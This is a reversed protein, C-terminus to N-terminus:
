TQFNLLLRHAFICSTVYFTLAIIKPCVIKRSIIAFITSVATLKYTHTHNEWAIFSIHRFEHMTALGPGLYSPIHLPFFTGGVNLAMSFDLSPVTDVATGSFLIFLFQIHPIINTEHSTVYCRM